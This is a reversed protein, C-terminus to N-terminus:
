ILVNAYGSLVEGSVECILLGEVIQVMFQELLTESVGSKRGEKLLTGGIRKIFYFDGIRSHM